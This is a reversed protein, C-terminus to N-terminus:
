TRHQRDPPAGAAIQHDFAHSREIRHREVEHCDIWVYLRDPIEGALVLNSEGGHLARDLRDRELHGGLLGEPLTLLALEVREGDRHSVGVCLSNHQTTVGLYRRM